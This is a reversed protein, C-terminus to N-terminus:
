NLLEPIGFRKIFEKLKEEGHKWIFSIDDIYRWWLFLELEVERLIEDKLDAMLIVNFSPAFKTGVATGRVTLKIM